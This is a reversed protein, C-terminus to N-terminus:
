RAGVRLWVRPDAVRAESDTQPLSAPRSTRIPPSTRDLEESAVASSLKGLLGALEYVFDALDSDVSAETGLSLARGSLPRAQIQALEDALRWACPRTLLPFIRMGSKAHRLIHPMEKDWIYDSGFFAPSIMLVAARSESLADEIEKGM